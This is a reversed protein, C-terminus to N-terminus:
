CAFGGLSRGHLARCEIENAHILELKLIKEYSFFFNNSVVRTNFTTTCLKQAIHLLNLSFFFFNHIFIHSKILLCSERQTQRTLSLLVLEAAKFQQTNARLLSVRIQRPYNSNRKVTFSCKLNESYNGYDDTRGLKLNKHLMSESSKLKNHIAFFFFLLWVCCKNM